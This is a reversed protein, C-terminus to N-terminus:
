APRCLLLQAGEDYGSPKISHAQVAVLFASRNGVDEPEVEVMGSAEWFDFEDRATEENGSDIMQQLNGWDLTPDHEAENLYFAPAIAKSGIDYLYLAPPRKEQKLVDWVADAEDSGQDWDESLLITGDSAPAVNDYSVGKGLGGELVYTITTNWTSPDTAVNIGLDIRYLRSLPNEYRPGDDDYAESGAGGDAALWLVNNETADENIDEPALFATARTANGGDRETLFDALSERTERQAQPVLVWTCPKSNGIGGITSAADVSSPVWTDPDDGDHSAPGSERAAGQVKMAYLEGTSLGNVDGPGPTGIWLYIEGDDDDESGVLITLGGNAPRYNRLPVTTEKEYIGLGEVPYANGDPLCAWCVGSYGANEENTFFVPAEQGTLPDFFGTKALVAGCFDSAVYGSQTYKKADLDLVAAPTDAVRPTAGDDQKLLTTPHYKRILPMAGVVEWDTTLKVLSVRAGPVFGSVTGSFITQRFDEGESRDGALEHNLWVYYFEGSRMFGLGDMSGAFGYTLTDHPQLDPFTGTLLPVEDGASFLPVIDFAPAGPAKTLMTPVRTRATDPNLTSHPNDSLAPNRTPTEGVNIDCASLTMAPAALASFRLFDRRKRSHASDM